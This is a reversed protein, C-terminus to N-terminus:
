KDTPTAQATKTRSAITVLSSTRTRSTVTVPTSSAAINSKSAAVSTTTADGQTIENGTKQETGIAEEVTDESTEETKDTVDKTAGRNIIGEPVLNLINLDKDAPPDFVELEIDFDTVEKFGEPLFSVDDPIIEDVKNMAELLGTAEAAQLAKTWASSYIEILAATTYELVKLQPEAFNETQKLAELDVDLTTAGQYFQGSLSLPARVINAWISLAMEYEQRTVANDMLETLVPWIADTLQDQSMAYLAMYEQIQQRAGASLDANGSQQNQIVTLIDDSQRASIQSHSRLYARLSHHQPRESRKEANTSTITPGKLLKTFHHVDQPKGYSNEPNVTDVVIENGDKDVSISYPRLEVKKSDDSPDKIWIIPGRIYVVTRPDLKDQGAGENNWIRAEAGKPIQTTMSGEKRSEWDSVKVVTGFRDPHSLSAFDKEDLASDGDKLKVLGSLIKTRQANKVPDSAKELYPPNNPDDGNALQNFLTNQQHQRLDGGYYIDVRVKGGNVAPKIHYGSKGDGVTPEVDLKLHLGAPPFLDENDKSNAEMADKLNTTIRVGGVGPMEDHKSDGGLNPKKATHGGSQPLPPARVVLVEHRKVTQFDGSVVLATALSLGATFIAFHKM